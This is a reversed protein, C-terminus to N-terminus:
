SLKLSFVGNRYIRMYAMQGKHKCQYTGVISGGRQKSPLDKRPLPVSQKGVANFVPSNKGFLETYLYNLHGYSKHTKMRPLVFSEKCIPERQPQADMSQQSTFLLRPETDHIYDMPVLGNGVNFFIKWSDYGGKSVIRDITPITECVWDGNASPLTLDM